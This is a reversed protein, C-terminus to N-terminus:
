TISFAMHGPRHSRGYMQILMNFCLYQQNHTYHTRYCVHIQINSTAYSALLYCKQHIVHGAIHVGNGSTKEVLSDVKLTSM